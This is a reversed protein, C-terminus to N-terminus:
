DEAPKASVAVKSPRLVRERITYGKSLESVVVGEPHEQSPQQMVADHLNPDFPRGHAQIPEVGHKALIEHLQRQVMDLGATVGEAGSARLAEIARDLNDLPDLLDRALSGISYIRDLDAQQKSRKQYNAFEARARLLQEKYEDREQKIQAASESGDDTSSARGAEEKAQAGGSAGAKSSLDTEADVLPDSASSAEANRANRTKESM